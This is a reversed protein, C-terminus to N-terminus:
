RPAERERAVAPGRRGQLQSQVAKTFGDLAKEMEDTEQLFEEKSIIHERLHPNEETYIFHKCAVKFYRICLELEYFASLSNQDLLSLDLDDWNPVDAQGLAANLFLIKAEPPGDDSDAVGRAITAASTVPSARLLITMLMSIRAQRAAAKQRADEAEERHRAAISIAIAGYGVVWTGVGAVWDAISGPDEFVEIGGPNFAALGVVAAAILAPILWTVRLLSVHTFAQKARLWLTEKKM